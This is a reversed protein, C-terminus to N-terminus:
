RDEKDVTARAQQLYSELADELEKRKAPMQDALNIKEEFDKSLDFLEVKNDLYTKVLKYDGQRIASQPKRKVAHHFVLFDQNRQVSNAKGKILNKLSGGDLREHHFTGGALDALTPLLDVGSVPVSSCANKEIGPGCIMFPVRIGGEYMTGKGNRLPLNLDQTEEGPMATRGGNDSMFIIYTSDLLGLEEVKNLLRGIGTDLDETMAAFNSIDHLKGKKRKNVAELTQQKYYIDLHVAYHSVQLYFPNGQSVCNEIFGCARDTLYDIKKPDEKAAPGGSNKSGGDANRTPGDSEDYGMEAPPIEDFRHDWKGFHATKYTKDIGKLVGCINPQQRYYDTWGTQDQQYIHRAPSQGIQLSRRTPCCFPAPSYGDTFRMGMSALRELNPTLYYDSRSEPLEPNMLVSTGKWSQDDSLILIFNPSKAQATLVGFLFLLM